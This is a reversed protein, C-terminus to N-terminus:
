RFGYTVPTQLKSQKQQPERATKRQQRALFDQVEQIRKRAQPALPHNPYDAVLRTFAEQARLSDHLRDWNLM